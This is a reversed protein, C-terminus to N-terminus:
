EVGDRQIITAGDREDGRPVPYGILCIARKALVAQYCAITESNDHKEEVRQASTIPVFPLM